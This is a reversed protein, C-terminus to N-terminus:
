WSGTAGGGGFSGGGGSFGGGSGSGWGGGFSGSWFIPTRHWKRRSRTYTYGYLRENLYIIGLMVVIILFVVLPAIFGEKGNEVKYEGGIAKILSDIGERLGNFYDSKKFYPIIKRDIIDRATIDPVVGELGYGVEIRIKREKLAVLVIIGNDKGKQGIKWKEALRISFEEIDWGEISEFIAIVIQNTTEKEYNYLIQELVSIEEPKLIKAYDSVRSLPREPIELSYTKSLFLLVSLFIIIKKLDM